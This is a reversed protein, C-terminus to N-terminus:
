PICDAQVKFVSCCSHWRQDVMEGHQAALEDPPPMTLTPFMAGLVREEAAAVVPDEVGNMHRCTINVFKVASRRAFAKAASLLTHGCLARAVAASPSDTSAAPTGSNAAAFACLEIDALAANTQPSVDCRNLFAALKDASACCEAPLGCPTAFDLKM